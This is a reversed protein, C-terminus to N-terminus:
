RPPFNLRAAGLYLGSSSEGVPFATLGFLYVGGFQPNNRAKLSITVKNGPEVPREFMVLVEHSDTAERGGISTVFLSPADAFLDGLHARTLQHEFDIRELNPKQTIKVAQLAEGADKPVELTFQYSSSAGAATESAGAKILRPSREFFTQGNTLKFARSHHNRNSSNEGRRLYSSSNEKIEDHPSTRVSKTTM